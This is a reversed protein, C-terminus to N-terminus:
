RHSPPPESAITGWRPTTSSTLACCSVVVAIGRNDHIKGSSGHCPSSPPPVGLEQQRDARNRPAKSGGGRRCFWTANPHVFPCRRTWLPGSTLDDGCPRLQLADPQPVSPSQTTHPGHDPAGTTGPVTGVSSGMPRRRRRSIMLMPLCTRRVPRSAQASVRVDSQRNPTSTPSSNKTRDKPGGSPPM